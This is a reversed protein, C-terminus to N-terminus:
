QWSSSGSPSESGRRRLKRASCGEVINRNALEIERVSPLTSTYRISTWRAHIENAILEDTQPPGKVYSAVGQLVTADWANFGNQGCSVLIISPYQQKLAKAWERAKLVYEEASMHGEQWEGYLENGIVFRAILGM